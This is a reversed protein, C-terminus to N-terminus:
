NRRDRASRDWVGKMEILTLGDRHELLVDPRRSSPPTRRRAAARKAKPIGTTPDISAIYQEVAERYLRSLTPDVGETLHRAHHIAKMQNHLHEPLQINVHTTGPLTPHQRKTESM